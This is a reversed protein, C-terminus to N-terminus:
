QTRLTRDVVSVVQPEIVVGDVDRDDDLLHDVGLFGAYQEGPVRRCSVPLHDDLACIPKTLGDDRTSDRRVSVGAQNPGSLLKSKFGLECRHATRVTVM